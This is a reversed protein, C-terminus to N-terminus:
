LGLVVSTTGLCELGLIALIHNFQGDIGVVKGLFKFCGNLGNNVKGIVWLHLCDNNVLRNWACGFSETLNFFAARVDDTDCTLTMLVQRLNSAGCVQDAVVVENGTTVQDDTSGMFQAAVGKYM